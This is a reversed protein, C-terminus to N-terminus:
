LLFKVWHSRPYKIILSTYNWSYWSFNILTLCTRCSTRDCMRLRGSMVCDAEPPNAGRGETPSRNRSLYCSQCSEVAPSIQPTALLRHENYVLVNSRHTKWKLYQKLKKVNSITYGWLAALRLLCPASNKITAFLKWFKYNQQRWTSTEKLNHLLPTKITIM